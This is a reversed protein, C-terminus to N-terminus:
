DVRSEESGKRTSDRNKMIFSYCEEENKLYHDRYWKLQEISELIDSKATHNGKKTPFLKMLKPNHRMGIEMVSSVDILRYHLYDVVQPFERMMFFKDMYVSNGAMLAKKPEIYKKIYNLLDTQIKPLTCQPNNLVKDILGSQGHHSLCWENMDDLVQKPYYITSEFGDEDIIEFNGDTIICCIEIIHDNFVDLGTMECDIWVVPKQIKRNKSRVITQMLELTAASHNTDTSQTSPVKESDDSLKIRKAPQDSVSRSMSFSANRYKRFLSRFM